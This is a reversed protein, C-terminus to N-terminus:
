ILKFYRVTTTMIHVIVATSCALAALITVMGYRRQTVLM